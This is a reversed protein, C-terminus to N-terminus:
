NKRQHHGSSEDLACLVLLKVQHAGAHGDDHRHGADVTIGFHQVVLDGAPDRLVHGDWALSEWDLHASSQRQCGSGQSLLCNVYRCNVM